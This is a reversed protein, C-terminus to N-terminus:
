IGLEARKLYNKIEKKLPERDEEKFIYHEMDNDKLERYEYIQRTLSRSLVEVRQKEETGGRRNERRTEWKSEFFADRQYDDRSYSLDFFDDYSSVIAAYLGFNTLKGKNDILGFKRFKRKARDVYYEVRSKGKFDQSVAVDQYKLCKLSHFFKPKVDDFSFHNFSYLKKPLEQESWFTLFAVEYHEEAIAEARRPNVHFDMREPRDHPMVDLKFNYNYHSMNIDNLGSSYLSNNITFRLKVLAEEYEEKKNHFPDIYFKIYSNTYGQDMSIQLVNRSYAKDGDERLKVLGKLDNVIKELEEISKQIPAFSVEDGKKKIYNAIERTEDM